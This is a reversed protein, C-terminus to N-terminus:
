MNDSGHNAPNEQNGQNKTPSKAPNKQISPIFDLLDKLGLFRPESLKKKPTKAPNTQPNSTHFRTFGKQRQLLSTKAHSQLLSIM